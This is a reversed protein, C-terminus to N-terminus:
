SIGAADARMDRVSARRCFHWFFLAKLVRANGRCQPLRGKYIYTRAAKRCPRAKITFHQM